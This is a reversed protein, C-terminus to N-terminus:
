TTYNSATCGSCTGRGDIVTKLRGANDYSYKTTENAPSKVSLTQGGPSYTTTTTHNLEDTATLQDGDEDYTFNQWAGDPEM